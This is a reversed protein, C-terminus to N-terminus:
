TEEPKHIDHYLKSLNQKAKMMDRFLENSARIEDTISTDKGELSRTAEEAQNKLQGMQAIAAELNADFKGEAVGPKGRTQGPQQIGQVSNVSSFKVDSM